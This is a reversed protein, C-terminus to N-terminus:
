GITTAYRRRGITATLTLRAVQAPALTFRVAHPSLRHQQLHMVRAGHSLVLRTITQKASVTVTLESRRPSVITAKAQDPDTALGLRVPHGARLTARQCWLQGQPFGFMRSGFAPLALVKRGDCNLAFETRALV